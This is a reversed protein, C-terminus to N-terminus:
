FCKQILIIMHNETKLKNIHYIDFQNISASFDKCDQSLDWKIM